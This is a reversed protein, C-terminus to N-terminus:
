FLRKVSHLDHSINGDEDLIGKKNLPNEKTWGSAHIISNKSSILGVHVVKGNQNKFFALDGEEHEEFKIETGLAAQQWADRPLFLSNMKLIIQVLGSCDIGFISRGGWLYPVGLFKRADDIVMKKQRPQDIRRFYKLDENLWQIPVVSGPSLNLIGFDEISTKFNETVIVSQSSEFERATEEDLERFLKRDIFGTYSDYDTKIKLWKETQDLVTYTEGFLLQSVMESKDDM